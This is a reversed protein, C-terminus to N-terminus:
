FKGSFGGGGFGGGGGSFGGSSRSSSSSSSSFDSSILVCGIFSDEGNKCVDILIILVICGLVIWVWMPVHIAENNALQKETKKGSIVESSADIISVIGDAWKQSKFKPIALRGIVGAKGDNLKGEYGYGVEIRFEREKMTLFFIIGNDKGANGIKWAEAVKMSASEVTEGPMEPVICVAFQGNTNKEFNLIANEIKSIDEKSLTNTTDVVRGTLTPVEFKKEKIDCGTLICICSIFLLFIKLWL